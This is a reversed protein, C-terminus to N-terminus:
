LRNRKTRAAQEAPTDDAARGNGVALVGPHLTAIRQLGALGRALQARIRQAMTHKLAVHM